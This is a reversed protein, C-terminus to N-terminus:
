LQKRKLIVMSSGVVPNRALLTGNPDTLNLKTFDLSQSRQWLENAFRDQQEPNFRYWDPSVKVVLHGSQFNPLVMTVLGNIYRDSVEFVQDQVSAILKQEPTLEVEPEPAVIVPELVVDSPESSIETPESTVETPESIVETPESTVEISEPESDATSAIPSTPPLLVEPEPASLNTPFPEGPKPPVEFAPSPTAPKQPEPPAVEVAPRTAVIPKAPKPSLVSSTVWFVLLFVGALIGSLARDGLKQNLEEPLRSRVFGLLKSWLPLFAQWLKRFFSQINAVIPKALSRLIANSSVKGPPAELIEIVSELTRIMVRLMRVTFAKISPESTQAQSVSAQPKASKEQSADKPNPEQQSM